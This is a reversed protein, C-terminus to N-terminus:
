VREEWPWGVGMPRGQKKAATMPKRELRARESHMPRIMSVNSVESKCGPMVPRRRSM